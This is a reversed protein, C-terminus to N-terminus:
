FLKSGRVINARFVDRENPSLARGENKMIEGASTCFLLRTIEATKEEDLLGLTVGTRLVSLHGYLEEGSLLRASSLIALSRFFSDEFNLNGKYLAERTAREREIIQSVIASLNSLSTKEDIGLTLQNSIQYLNGVAKTQEGFTGRITLGLKSFMGMLKATDGNEELAPLHLMVSARLGTGLNTPCATLYGLTDSFAIKGLESVKDDLESAMNYANELNNGSSLAQIRLHDEENVMICVSEDDRKIIAGRDKMKSFPPSILHRAVLASITMEDEDALRSFKLEPDSTLGKVREFVDEIDEPTARDPFPIDNFNRALRVRSSIAVDSDPGLLEFWKKM